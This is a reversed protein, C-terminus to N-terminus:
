FDKKIRRRLVIRNRFIVVDENSEKRLKLERLLYRHHQQELPTRDPNIFINKHEHHRKLEKARRLLLDRFDSDKCKVKLLRPKEERPRGIRHVSVIGGTDHCIVRLVENCKLLDSEDADDDSCEPLGSIVVNCRRKARDEAEEVASTLIENKSDKLQSLDVDIADFQKQLHDNRGELLSIRKQMSAITGKLENIEDKLTNIIDARSDEILAKIDNLTVAPTSAASRSGRRTPPTDTPM